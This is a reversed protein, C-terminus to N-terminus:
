LKSSSHWQSIPRNFIKHYAKLLCSFLTVTHATLIKLWQFCDRSSIYLAKDACPWCSVICSSCRIYLFESQFHHKFVSIWFARNKAQYATLGYKPLPNLSSQRFQDSVTLLSHGKLSIPINQHAIMPSFLCGLQMIPWHCMSSAMVQSTSPNLKVGVTYTLYFIYITLIYQIGSIQFTWM